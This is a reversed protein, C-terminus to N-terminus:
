AVSRRGRCLIHTRGSFLRSGTQDTTNSGLCNRAYTVFDPMVDLVKHPATEMLRPFAAAYYRERAFLWERADGRAIPRWSRWGAGVPSQESRRFRSAGSRRGGGPEVPPPDRVSDASIPWGRGTATQDIRALRTTPANVIFASSADHREERARGLALQPRLPHNVSRTSGASCEHM